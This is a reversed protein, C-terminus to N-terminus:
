LVNEMKILLYEIEVTEFIGSLSGTVPDGMPLLQIDSMGVLNAGVKEAMVIGQLM